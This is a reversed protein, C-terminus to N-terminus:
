FILFFFLFLGLGTLAGLSQMESTGRTQSLIKRTNSKQHKNYRIVTVYNIGAGMKVAKDPNYPFVPM